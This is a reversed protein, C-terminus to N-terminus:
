PMTAIMLVRKRAELRAIVRDLEEIEIVNIDRTSGASGAPVPNNVPVLTPGTPVPARTVAPPVPSPDVPNRPATLGARIAAITSPSIQLSDQIQIYTYGQDLMDRARERKEAATLRPARVTVHVSSGVPAAKLVGKVEEFAVNIAERPARKDKLDKPIAKHRKKSM